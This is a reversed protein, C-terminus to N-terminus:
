KIVQGAVNYKVGNREIVVQGEQIYKRTNNTKVVEVETVATKPENKLIQIKQAPTTVEQADKPIAFGSIGTVADAVFLNGAHDFKMQNLISQPSASTYETLTYRLKFSPVNDNWEVDYLSIYPKGTSVAICSLDDSVALGAGYSGDYDEINASNFLINGEYDCYLFSPVGKTNNGSGRIQSAFFGNELTTIEVNTNALYSSIESFMADPAQDTTVKTGINYVAVQNGANGTPIDEQFSLLKTDDGTGVFAVSTCSGGIGQGAANVIQGSGQRTGEFFPIATNPDAPDMVTIGGHPDCWDSIYVFGNNPNVGMRFPSSTSSTNWENQLYPAGDNVVELAPEVKYIGKTTGYPNSIYMNQFYPSEPNRDITMGRSCYNGNGIPKYHFFRKITPVAENDITVEWNYEVDEALDSKNVTFQNGAAVAAGYNYVIPEGEGDVPKLTIVANEVDRTVNFNLTYTDEDEDLTLAYAYDGRVEPQEVGSTTFKVINNDMQLFLNIDEGKVNAGAAMFQAPAADAKLMSNAAVALDTGVTKILKANDLGETVDYLKVGAVNDGSVYPSAVLAHKAYKFFALGKAAVGTETADLTGTVESDTNQQPAPEFEFPACKSGNLVYRHDNLPSVNLQVDDGQKVLTFTGEASLTKETFRQAVIENDNVNLVLFRIARSTGNTVGTIVVECDKAEGSVALTAGMDARYFNASSQTTVWEVPDSDFDAWKFFRVTGRAYGEDVQDAGYQCRVNNVGVLQGDATFAIDSLRSYFGLNNPEAPAIGNISLEKVLAKKANNILYVAPTGQNDTLVVTSDGRTISRKITGPIEFTTGEDQTFNYAPAVKLYGPQVPDPYNEYTITEPQYNVDELHLQAYSTENAKVTIAMEEFIDKYGECSAALTYDGPELDEFVFVGNYNQDCTYTAVAQGNKKLTVVAGNLPLWQDDTGPNYKYLNNVIKNHLDKVTGMIYGVKEPNLGFYACVGRAERLGEQHCYDMNLARHRAPQYTHFYGEVLYGPTGHRLVGLYGTFTGKSTTTEYTSGYFNWDGRINKQTRSYYSNPDIETMYRADWGADCMEYSGENHEYDGSAPKDQGRYLYLPYNATTGDTAANSHISVFMDMNNADVERSIETLNRNYKEADPDGAVYPYPGNKVRSYMINEKKVGMKELTEGMKLIKWLNTNSEYFGCTDPMGNALNPYPITAMPRDNPGWSGHGPNLYIRVEDATKAQMAGAAMIAAAALLLIKKM